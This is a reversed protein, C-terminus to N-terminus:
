SAGERLSIWSGESELSAQAAELVRVVKAGFTGDSVTPVGRTLGVFSECVARLPERQSVKPAIMDGVRYEMLASESPEMGKDFVKVQNDPDLHDYVVMRASGSLITRRVKVPSLWNLHLHALPGDEYRVSMHVVSEPCWEGIAVPSAGIASVREPEGSLLHLMISIDHPGLDWLVNADSQFLGLNIRVSDYYLLRGLDGAGLISKVEQVAGSYLFTHDVMLAVSADAAKSVLDEAEAVTAALPKEVLVHKRAAIAASALSHHTSIPTAVVVADVDPSGILEAPDTTVRVWPAV